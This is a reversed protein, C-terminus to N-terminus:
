RVQGGCGRVACPYPKSSPAGNPPYYHYWSQPTRGPPLGPRNCRVVTSALMLPGAISESVSYLRAMAGGVSILGITADIRTLAPTYGSRPTKELSHLQRGHVQSLKSAGRALAETLDVFNVLRHDGKAKEVVLASCHEEFLQGFAENLDSDAPAVGLQFEEM